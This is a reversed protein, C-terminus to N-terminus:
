SRYCYRNMYPNIIGERSDSKVLTLIVRCQLKETYLLKSKSM